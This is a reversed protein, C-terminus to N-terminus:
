HIDVEKGFNGSLIKDLIEVVGLGNPKETVIDAIEKIQPIANAVAVKIDAIRFLAYDNESDGVAIIKGKFGTLEKFKLVGVGKDVGKPLIMADNRNVEIRGYKEIDRLMDLKSGYGDIYIIVRGISYKAKLNDLIEIIKERDREFWSKECLVFEKNDFFILSGNELIWATPRLGVALKDMFKKERGSVVVFKYKKSFENVKQVVIPSIVFNNEENALTRDYDSAVLIENWDIDM